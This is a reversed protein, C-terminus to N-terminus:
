GSVKTVETEDVMRVSHGFAVSMMNGSVYSVVGEVSPFGHIHGGQTLSEIKQPTLRVKDGSCFREM